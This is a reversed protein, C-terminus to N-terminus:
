YTPIDVISKLLMLQCGIHRLIVLSTYKFDIDTYIMVFSFRPAPLQIRLHSRASYSILISSFVM